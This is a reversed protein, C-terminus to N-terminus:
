EAKLKSSPILAGAASVAPAGTTGIATAVTAGGTIALAAAALSDTTSTPSLTGLFTTVLAAFAAVATLELQLADIAAKTSTAHAVWDATPAGVRYHGPGNFVAEEDAPADTPAIVDGDPAVGPLAFAGDLSHRRVDGVPGANGTNRWSTISAHTFIVIVWDDKALPLHMSYGGARPWRVQVNPLVPLVEQLTSGDGLRLPRHQALEIDAVQKLNDYSVVRGPACTYVEELHSHIADEIIEIETPELPM